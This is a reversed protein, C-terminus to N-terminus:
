LDFIVAVQPELFPFSTAFTQWARPMCFPASLALDLDLMRFQEMSAYIV